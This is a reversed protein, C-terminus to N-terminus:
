KEEIIHNKLAKEVTQFTKEYSVRLMTEADMSDWYGKNFLEVALGGRFGADYLKPLLIDFPCVGEGPLVRDADTLLERAPNAPYDNMHFLPIKKGNLHDLSGWDNGGRYLHYFDLLMTAKPHGSSIVIQACDSLKHLAGTGWLEILPIVGTEKELELVAKYRNTYEDFKQADLSKLGLIPAAIYKGGLEATIIMEERIQDLAKKRVKPDDSCWAAFAIMDELVLNGAELKKRLEATTGGSEVYANIDRMWLEIGDFGADAVMDIQKDVTLNYASITSTNLSIRFPLKKKLSTKTTNYSGVLPDSTFAYGSLAALSVKLGTGIANRRSIKDKIM